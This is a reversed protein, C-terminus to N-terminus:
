YQQNGFVTLRPRTHYPPKEPGCVDTGWELEVGDYFGDGDSDAHWPNSLVQYETLEDLGDQDLDGYPNTIGYFNAWEDPLGDGNGDPGDILMREVRIPKGPLQNHDVGALEFWYLQNPTLGYLWFDFQQPVILPSPREDAVTVAGPIPCGAPGYR